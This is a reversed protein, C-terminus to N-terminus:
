AIHSWLNRHAIDHATSPSINHLKALASFSMGAQRSARLERVAHETMKSGRHAEGRAIHHWRDNNM